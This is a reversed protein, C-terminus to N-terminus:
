KGWMRRWWPRPKPEFYPCNLNANRKECVASSTAIIRGTVPHYLGAEIIEIMCMPSGWTDCDMHKCDKCFVKDSM